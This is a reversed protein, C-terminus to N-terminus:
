LIGPSLLSPRFSCGHAISWQFYFGDGAVGPRNRPLADGAVVVNTLEHVGGGTDAAFGTFYSAQLPVTILEALSSEVVGVLGHGIRGPVEPVQDAEVLM